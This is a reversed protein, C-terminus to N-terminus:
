SDNQTNQNALAGGSLDDTPLLTLLPSALCISSYTGVLLGILIPLSFTAIVPGGFFYLALLAVLTTLSTLLTRSLTENISLNLLQALPMRGYRGRNERVRDFVVVTDNISYSATILLAVIAAENFEVRGLVYVGLVGVCDHLLAFLAALGFRWEFRVWIYLLMAILAFFIAWLGKSLLESSVKPGVSEVRRLEAADNPLVDKLFAQVAEQKPQLVGHELRILLDNSKGLTQVLVDGKTADALRKRLQGLDPAQTTRIELLTGGKFDVGRPLGLVLLGLFVLVVMAGSLGFTVWRQGIFDITPQKKLHLFGM